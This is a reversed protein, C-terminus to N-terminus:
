RTTRRGFSGPAAPRLGGGGGSPQAAAMAARPAAQVPTAQQKSRAAIAREIASEAGTLMTGGMGPIAAQPQATSKGPIPAGAIPAGGGSFGGGPPNGYKNPGAVGPMCGLEVLMYLNILQLLLFWMTISSFVREFNEGSVAGGVISSIIMVVPLLPLLVMLGSRGRDHFRKVQLATGVWGMLFMPLGFSVGMSSILRMAEAPTEPPPGSPLTMLTLLFLLMAGSVGAILCGLWYTLRNIRGNFGFFLSVLGM